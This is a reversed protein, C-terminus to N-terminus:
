CCHRYRPATPQERGALVQLDRGATQVVVTAPDDGVVQLQIGVALRQVVADADNGAEGSICRQATTRQVVGTAQQLRRRREADVGGSLPQGIGGGIAVADDAAARQLDATAIQIISAARHEGLGAGIYLGDVDVVAATARQHTGGVQQAPPLASM